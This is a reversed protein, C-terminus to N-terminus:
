KKEPAPGPGNPDPPAVPNPKPDQNCEWKYHYMGGCNHCEVPNGDRHVRKGYGGDGKQARGGRHKAGGRGGPGDRDQERALKNAQTVQSQVFPSVQKQTAKSVADTFRMSRVLTNQVELQMHMVFLAEAQKRLSPDLLQIPRVSLNFSREVGMEEFELNALIDSMGERTERDAKSEIALRSRMSAFFEVITAPAQQEPHHVKQYLEHVLFSTDKRASHM